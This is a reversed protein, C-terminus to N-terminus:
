NHQKVIELVEITSYIGLLM